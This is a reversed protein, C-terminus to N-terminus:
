GELILPVVTYCRNPHTCNIKNAFQEAKAKSSFVRSPWFSGPEDLYEYQALYVVTEEGAVAPNTASPNVTINGERSTRSPIGRPAKVHPPVDQVQRVQLVPM